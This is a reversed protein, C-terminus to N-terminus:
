LELFFLENNNEIDQSSLNISRSLFLLRRTHNNLYRSYVRKRGTPFAVSLHWKAGKYHHNDTGYLLLASESFNFTLYLGKLVLLYKFVSYKHIWLDDSKLWTFLSGNPVRISTIVAGRQLSGNQRRNRASLHGFLLILTVVFDDM